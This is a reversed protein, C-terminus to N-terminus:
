NEKEIKDIFIGTNKSLDVDLGLNKVCIEGVSNIFQGIFKDNYCSNCRNSNIEKIKM